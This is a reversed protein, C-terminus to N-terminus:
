NNENEEEMIPFIEDLTMNLPRINAHCVPCFVCWDKEQSNDRNYLTNGYQIDDYNVTALTGCIHCVFTAPQRGM